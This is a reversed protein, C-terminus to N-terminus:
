WVINVLNAAAIPADSTFLPANLRQAVGVIMRDHMEPIANDRTFELIHDPELGVFEFYPKTKMISYIEAFTWSHPKKQLIWYLEALSVVSIYLQTQGQEAAKFVSTANATLKKDGTLYWYLANTDVVYAQELGATPTAM